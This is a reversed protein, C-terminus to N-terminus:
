INSAMALRDGVKFGHYTRGCRRARGGYVLDVGPLAAFKFWYGLGIAATVAHDVRNVDVEGTRAIRTPSGSAASGDTPDWDGVIAQQVSAEATSVYYPDDELYSFQRPSRRAAGGADSALLVNVDAAIGSFSPVAPDSLTLHRFGVFASGALLALPKIEFGPMVGWGTANRDIAEHFTSHEREIRAVFTALPTMEFRLSGSVLRVDRDLASSLRVGDIVM